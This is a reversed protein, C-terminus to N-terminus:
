FSSVLRGLQENVINTIQQVYGDVTPSPNTLLPSSCLTNDLHLYNIKNLPRFKSHTVSPPPKHINLTCKVLSHDSVHRSNIISSSTILSPNDTAIIDLLKDGRTPENVHQTFNCSDLTSHLQPNIQSPDNGPCNFDGCLIISQSRYIILESLYDSLENYFATSPPTTPPRYINTVIFTNKNSTISISQAEFTTIPINTNISLARSTLSNNIIVALGGGRHGVRSHPRPTHLVHFGQPAIDQLIAPPDDSATWTECLALINLSEDSIITHISASKHIASRINLTAFQLLQSTASATPGPNSEIGALLLLLSVVVAPTSRRARPKYIYHSSRILLLSPPCDILSANLNSSVNNYCEHHILDNHQTFHGISSCTSVLDSQLGILSSRLFPSGNLHSLIIFSIVYNWLM